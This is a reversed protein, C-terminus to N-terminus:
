DSALIRVELGLMQSASAPYCTGSWDPSCLEPGTEFLSSPCFLLCIWSGQSQGNAPHGTCYSASLCAAWPLIVVLM